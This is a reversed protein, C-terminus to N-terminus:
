LLGRLFAIAIAQARTKAGLKRKANQVHTIVTLESLSLIDAIAGDSRGEAIFAICERERPTLGQHIAGGVPSLDRMRNHLVSSAVEIALRDDPAIHELREFALSVVGLYGGPGHCPVALGDPFGNDVLAQALGREAATILKAESWKFPQYRRRVERPLYNVNQFRKEDYFSEWGPPSIRSLVHEDNPAGRPSNYDRAFIAKAGFPQLAAFFASGVERATAFGAAAEVFDVVKNSLIPM